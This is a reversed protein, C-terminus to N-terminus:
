EDESKSKDKKDDKKDKKKDDVIVITTKKKAVPAPAEMMPDLGEALMCAQKIAKHVQSQCRWKKLAQKIVKNCKNAM